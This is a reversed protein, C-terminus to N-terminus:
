RNKNVTIALGGLFDVELDLVVLRLCLSGARECVCSTLFSISEGESTGRRDSDAGSHM